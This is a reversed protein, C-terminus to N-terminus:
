RSFSKKLALSSLLISIKGSICIVFSLSNEELTNAIAARLTNLIRWSTNSVFDGHFPSTYRRLVIADYKARTRPM